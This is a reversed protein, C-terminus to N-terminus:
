NKMKKKGQVRGEIAGGDRLGGIGYGASRTLFKRSSVMLKLGGGGVESVKASRDM